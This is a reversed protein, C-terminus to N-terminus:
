SNVSHCIQCTLESWFCLLSLDTLSFAGICFCQVSTQFMTEVVKSFWRPLLWKIKQRSLFTSKCSSIPRCLTCGSSVAFGSGPEDKKPQFISCKEKQVRRHRCGQQTLVTTAYFHIFPRCKKVCHQQRNSCHLYKCYRQWPPSTEM